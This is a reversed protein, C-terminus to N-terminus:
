NPALKKLLNKVPDYTGVPEGVDDGDKAYVTNNSDKFFLRGKYTWEEVELEAEEEEVEAEDADEVEEEVEIEVEDADEEEKIDSVEVEEVTGINKLDSNTATPQISPITTATNFVARNESLLAVIKAMNDNISNLSGNLVRFQIDQKTHLLQIAASTADQTECCGAQANPIANSIPEAHKSEVVQIVEDAFKLLTTHLDNQATKLARYM